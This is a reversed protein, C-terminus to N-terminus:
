ENDHHLIQLAAANALPEPARRPIHQQEAVQIRHGDHGTRDFVGDLLVRLHTVPGVRPDLPADLLEGRRQGKTRASRLATRTATNVASGFRSRDAHHRITMSVGPNLATTTHRCTAERRGRSTNRRSRRFMALCPSMKM